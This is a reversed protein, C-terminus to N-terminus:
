HFSVASSGRCRKFKKGSGCPCPENRGVKSSRVPQPANRELYLRATAYLGITSTPLMAIWEARSEPTAHLGENQEGEDLSLGLMPVLFTCVGESEAANWWKSGPAQMGAIFGRAWGQAKPAESDWLIPRHAYHANLRDVITNWMRAVLSAANRAQEESEFVSAERATGLIAHAAERARHGDSDMALACFYGDIQEVTMADDPMRESSFVAGLWDIEDKTLATSSGPDSQKRNEEADADRVWRLEKVPDGLPRYNAQDFLSPDGPALNCAITLHEECFELEGEAQLFRGERCAARLRERMEELGLLYIADQWGQWADDEPAALPERDFRDLFTMTTDHPVAGDFTLRALAGILSWRVFSDVRSDACADILTSTDGDFVSIIIKHLTETRAGGLISRLDDDSRQCVLRMLPQFLETRRASGLVHIGWFLLDGQGRSLDSGDAAQEVVAIVAPAIEGAIDVAARLVADPRSEATSLSEIIEAATPAVEQRSALAM